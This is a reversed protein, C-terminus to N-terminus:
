ECESKDVTPLTRPLVHAQIDDIPSPRGFYFGQLEDCRNKILWRAQAGTEVGEAIVKFGLNHALNIMTICLTRDAELDTIGDVFAKDIKIRDVPLTKLYALSSYGTGFDDIALQIGKEKFRLLAQRAEDINEMLATETIEFELYHTDVPYRSLWQEVKEPFAKDTLQRASINVALRWPKAESQWQCLQQLSKELVLDGIASILGAEEACPIFEAPSVFGREAHFWRILAEFGITNGSSNQQPQFYLQFAKQAIAKELDAILLRHFALREELDKSFLYLRTEPLQKARRMALEANKLLATKDLGDDPYLTIGTSISIRILRDDIRIDKKQIGQIKQIENNIGITDATNDLPVHIAFIDGAWRAVMDPEPFNAQLINSVNKLVQDGTSHGFQGNLESFNDIGLLMIVGSKQHKKSRLLQSILREEFLARNPLGTLEDFWNKRILEQEYHKREKIEAQLKQNIKTLQSTRKKVRKDLEANLSKLSGMQTAILELLSNLAREVDGLEDPRFSAKTYQRTKDSHKSALAIRYRLALLGALVMKYFVLLTSLTVFLAIVLTLGMIRGAFLLLAEPLGAANIRADVPVDLGTDRSSWRVEFIQDGPERLDNIQGSWLTNLRRSLNNGSDSTKNIGLLGAHRLTKRTYMLTETDPDGIYGSVIIQFAQLAQQSREAKLNDEHKIYSPIFIIIEITLVSVFLAIALNRCLRCESLRQWGYPVSKIFRQIKFIGAGAQQKEFM